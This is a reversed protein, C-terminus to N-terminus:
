RLEVWQFVNKEVGSALLCIKLNPDPIKWRTTGIICKWKCYLFSEDHWASFVIVTIHGKALSLVKEYHYINKSSIVFIKVSYPNQPNGSCFEFDSYFITLNRYYNLFIFSFGSYVKFNQIWIGHLLVIKKGTRKRIRNQIKSLFPRQMFWPTPINRSSKQCGLLLSRLCM